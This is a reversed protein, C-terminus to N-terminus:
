AVSANAWRELTRRIQNAVDAPRTTIRRYTFRLVIWGHAAFEADELRDRECQDRDRGHHTWGDCEIVLPTGIVHCDVDRGGVHAHFEATPLGYRVLLRRMAPELVSDAPKADLSWDDVARRLATVGRRGKRAHEDLATEIAGLTALDNTLAHGVAGHVATPDVAGLDVLTRLIDTCPIEDIRHPETRQLDRPRHVCVDTLKTATRGRANAHDDAGRHPVVIDVPPPDDVPIGHLLAASRHSALAGDGVALVAAAISQQPTDATGVLRAVGRHVEVLTGAAIARQWAAARMTTQDRAVVGHQRRAIKDLDSLRM